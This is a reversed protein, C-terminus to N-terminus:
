NKFRRGIYWCVDERATSVTVRKLAILVLAETIWSVFWYVSKVTFGHRIDLISGPFKVWKNFTTKLLKFLSLFNM